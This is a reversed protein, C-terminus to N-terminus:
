VFHPPSSWSGLTLEGLFDAQILFSFIQVSKEILLGLVSPSSEAVGMVGVPGGADLYESPSLDWGRSKDQGEICGEGIKWVIYEM